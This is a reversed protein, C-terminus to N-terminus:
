SICSCLLHFPAKGAAHIMSELYYYAKPYMYLLENSSMFGVYISVFVSNPFIRNMVLDLGSVICSVPVLENCGMVYVFYQNQSLAHITVQASCSM